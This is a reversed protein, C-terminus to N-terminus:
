CQGPRSPPCTVEAGQICLEELTQSANHLALALIGREPGSVDPQSHSVDNGGNERGEWLTCILNFFAM